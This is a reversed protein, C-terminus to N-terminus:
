GIWSAGEFARGLDSDGREANAWALRADVRRMLSHTVPEFHRLWFACGPLNASEFDVSCHTYGASRAWQLGTQLLATGIGTGRLEERTFAGTIAVISRASTPLVLQESPEFQLYAVVEGDKSAM